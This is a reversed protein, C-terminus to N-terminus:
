GRRLRAPAPQYDPALDFPYFNKPLYKWDFRKLNAAGAGPTDAFCFESAFSGYPVRFSTNAKVVVLDCLKPEIGFHRLIQPDGSAATDECVMIEISGFRLVASMGVHCPFGRGAPGEQLYAGDHLSRVQGVAVLPGPMGPTFKAGLTFKATNGVGVDFAQQVAEPDKVFMGARITSGREIMRLAVVVSDGVAGGNPSDAADVLIVPKPIKPNEACDIVEDVSMLKPWYGDRNDYLKQALLDTYTRATPEDAAIVTVTSGIDPIDLWPQVQFTTFDLIKGEEILQNGYDIVSKFPGELSTYGVPPVMMPIITSAQCTPEGLLKRMGLKAARYGTEYFDVHPYTQYGCIIDTSRLMRETVNAHLDFSAAIVVKEDVQERLFELFAGCADDESETCTAGHCSAFIADFPAETEIYHRMRTLLLAFVPDEVRGGSSSYLSIAPIVEGGAAEAADMMGHFACPLTKCLEYAKKGEAYRVASFGSLPMAIPNFTNTEEHFECILVRKRKNM